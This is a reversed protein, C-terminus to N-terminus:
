ASAREAGAVEADLLAQLASLSARRMPRADVRDLPPQRLAAPPLVTLEFALGDATFAWVPFVGERERDLRLRRPHEDAPIGHEHLFRAVSDPDEAFLQLSVPTHADATGELVAGVMRPDFRQFFRMAEAAAQRRERLLMPQVDAQFLRQHARLADEIERNRPLSPDDHIGLRGAAKTKAQRFDRIGEEAMIRAAEAAVRQRRERSRTEAHKRAHRM